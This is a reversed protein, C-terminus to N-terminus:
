PEQYNLLAAAIALQGLSLGGDNPPVLHHRFVQFDDKRLRACVDSTLVANVFVGGSLVVTELGTSERLRQCVRAIIEALTAHFRGAITAAEVGRKAEEVIAAILPRTDIVMSRTDSDEDQEPQLNFPYIGDRLTRAAMGELQVAAQGEYSVRDTACILSAVADFLRGVSSTLPALFRRKLMQEITQWQRPLLRAELPAHHVGADVLYAVAM